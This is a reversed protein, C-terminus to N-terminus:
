DVLEPLQELLAPHCDRVHAHLESFSRKCGPQPCVGRAVRNRMRTLHGKYAAATRKEADLQDQVARRHTEERDLRCELQKVKKRERDADTESWGLSHGNPCYFSGGNAYREARMREPIAFVVSCNACDTIWLKTEVTSYSGEIRNRTTITTM